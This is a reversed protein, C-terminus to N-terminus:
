FSALPLSSYTRRSCPQLSGCRQSLLCSPGAASTIQFSSFYQKLPVLSVIISLYPKEPKLIILTERSKVLDESTEMVLPAFGDGDVQAVQLLKPPRRSLSLYIPTDSAAQRAAPLVLFEGKMDPAPSCQQFAHDAALGRGQLMSSAAM